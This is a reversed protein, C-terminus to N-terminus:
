CTTDRDVVSANIVWRNDYYLATSNTLLRSAQGSVAASEGTAAYVPQWGTADVCDRISASGEPTVDSVQPSLSPEGHVAIGNQQLDYATSGVDSQATDVAYYSFQTWLAAFSDASTNPDALIKVKTAWYGRYADLIAAEAAAMTPDVSPTHSPTSSPTPSTTPPAITTTPTPEPAPDSCAALLTAALMGTV